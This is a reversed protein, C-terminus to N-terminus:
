PLAVSALPTYISGQPHLESRFLTLERVTWSGLRQTQMSKVADGVRQGHSGAAKLRAITLHPKFDRSESHSGFQMTERAVQHHLKGLSELEGQVGIWVVSPRRFSPFCGIAGLSLSFPQVGAISRNMAQQLTEIDGCQVNGLFRLTLHLQERRTWRVATGLRQALTEQQQVIKSLLDDPLCIALFARVRATKGPPM